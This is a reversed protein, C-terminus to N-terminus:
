SNEEPPAVILIPSQAFPIGRHMASFIYRGREHVEFAPIPLIMTYVGLPDSRAPLEADFRFLIEASGANEFTLSISQGDYVNCLRVYAVFGGIVAPLAPVVITGIIGQLFHKAKGQSILV